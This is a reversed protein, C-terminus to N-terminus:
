FDGRRGLMIWEKGIQVFEGGFHFRVPRIEAPDM